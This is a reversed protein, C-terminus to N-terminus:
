TERHRATAKYAEYDADSIFGRRYDRWIDMERSLDLGTHEKQIRRELQLWFAPDHVEGQHREYFAAKKAEYDGDSSPAVSGGGLRVLEELLTVIRDIKWYWLVAARFILFLLAIIGAAGVFVIVDRM